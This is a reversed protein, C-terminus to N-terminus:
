RDGGKIYKDILSFIQDYCLDWWYCIGEIFDLNLANMIAYFYIYPAQGYSNERNNLDYRTPCALYDWNDLCGTETIFIKKNYKNYLEKICVLEYSNMIANTACDITTNKGRSSIAFYQNIYFKSVFSKIEEPMKFCHYSGSNSVGYNYGANKILKLNDLIIQTYDSDLLIGDTDDDLENFIIVDEVDPLNNKIFALLHNLREYHQSAFNDRGIVNKIYTSNSGSSRLFRVHLKIKNIKIGQSTYINIKSLYEEDTHFFYLESTTENYALEFIFITPDLDLLRIREADEELRATEISNIEGNNNKPTGTYDICACISPKFIRDNPKNKTDFNYKIFATDNEYNFKLNMGPKIEFDSNLSTVTYEKNLYFVDINNAILYKKLEEVTDSPLKGKNVRIIFDSDYVTIGKIIDDPLKYRITFEDTRSIWKTNPVVTKFRIESSDNYYLKWSETGDIKKHTIRKYLKKNMLDIYDYFGRFGYLPEDLVLNHINGDIKIKVNCDEFTSKLTYPDTFGLISLENIKNVNALNISNKRVMKNDTYKMNCAVFKGTDSNSINSKNYLYFKGDDKCIAFYVDPMGYDEVSLMQQKTLVQRYDLPSSANLLFGDIITIAM